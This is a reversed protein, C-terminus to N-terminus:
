KFKYVKVFKGEDVIELNQLVVRLDEGDLGPYGVKPLVVLDAGLPKMQVVSWAHSGVDTPWEGVIWGQRHALSLPVSNARYLYIIKKSEPVMAEIENAIEINQKDFDNFYYQSTRWGNISILIVTFLVIYRNYKAFFVLGYAALVSVPVIYIDAYYQHTMNGEFVLRWYVPVMLLWGWFPWMRMEKKVFSVLIGVVAVLSISKGMVEGVVNKWILNKLLGLNYIGEGGSLVWNEWVVNVGSKGIWWRWAGYIGLILFVEALVERWKYKKRLLIAVVLPWGILIFPRTAVSLGLLVGGLVKGGTSKSKLLVVLGSLWTATAFVDPHIAHGLFFISAPALSFTLVALNALLKDRFWVKTLWWLSLASILYLGLNVWRVGLVGYGFIKYNLALLAQYAPFELFFYGEKNDVPRMLCSKPYLLSADGKALFYAVCETDTQRMAHADIPLMEFNRLRFGLGLFIIIMLWFYQSKVFKKALM